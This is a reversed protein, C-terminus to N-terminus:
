LRWDDVDGATGAMGIPEDASHRLHQQIAQGRRLLDVFVTPQFYEVASCHVVAAHIAVVKIVTNECRLEALDTAQQFQAAFPGKGICVTGNSQPVTADVPANGGAGWAHAAGFASERVFM